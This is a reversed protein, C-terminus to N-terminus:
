VRRKIANLNGGQSSQGVRGVATHSKYYKNNNKIFTMSINQLFITSNYKKGHRRLVFNSSGASPNNKLNNYPYYINTQVM